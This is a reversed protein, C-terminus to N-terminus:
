PTVASKSRNRGRWKSKAGQNNKLLGYAGQKSLPTEGDTFVDNKSWVDGRAAFKAQNIGIESKAPAGSMKGVIGFEASSDCEV